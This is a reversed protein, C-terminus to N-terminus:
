VWEYFCNEEKIYFKKTKDSPITPLESKHLFIQQNNLKDIDFFYYLNSFPESDIAL